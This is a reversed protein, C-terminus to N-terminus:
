PRGKSERWFSISEPIMRKRIYNAIETTKCKSLAEPNSPVPVASLEFLEVESFLKGKGGKKGIEKWAKPIFGVSWGKMYGGSYLSFLEKGMATDAFQIRASVSTAGKELSVVKGVPLQNTDHAFLVVPNKLFNNIEIGKTEIVDGDRDTATTTIVADIIRQDNDVVTAGETNTRYINPM